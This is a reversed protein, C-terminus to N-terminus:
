RCGPSGPCASRWSRRRRTPPSTAPAPAAAPGPASAPASWSPATSCRPAPASAPSPAPDGINRDLLLAGDTADYLRLHPTIVSGVIVVGPVGSTPGYSADGAPPRDGTNQWVCRAPTSTSRTSPRGSRPASTRARRRDLLLGPPGGRRGGRHRHRRRHRRRPRRQDGTRCRRVPRRRGLARRDRENVGDRDLVYYTGDKSGIGVVDRPRRRRRRHTFLNPAAGFALDDNDVERPRWRWAPTGDLRLAVLAEDYRRCRRRRSRHRRTTTPTATARASTCCTRAGPRAAAVVVRQRLGNRDAPPRLGLPTALFGAPLGLERRATTATSAASTTAPTPDARRAARSTSTGSWRATTPTSRTSAARAPRSTTSTWASTSRAAPSSRRPSSRTASATSAASGPRSAAPTAPVRHRRRLAVREAGTAADLPTSTRARASSCWHATRRRRGRTVSGAAPIRRAPSTRGRSAGSSAGDGLRHAYVNGDWSPVYVVRTAGRARCTSPRSRRRRTVIAGTPFRWREVLQRRPRRADPAAGGPQLVARTRGAPSRRGSAAQRDTPELDGPFLAVGDPFALGDRVIEPPLPDGSPTSGSAGCRATRARDSTPCRASSTSTPTTCPATPASPSARRTARPSAAAVSPRSSRHLRVLDGTSTTSPSAGPSARERRLPQREARDRPGLVDAHGRSATAFVERQM